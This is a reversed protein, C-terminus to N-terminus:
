REREGAGAGACMRTSERKRARVRVSAKVSARVRGASAKNDDCSSEDPEYELKELHELMVRHLERRAMVMRIIALNKDRVSPTFAAILRLRMAFGRFAQSFLVPEIPTALVFRIRM